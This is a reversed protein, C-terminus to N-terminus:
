GVAHRIGLTIGVYGPFQDLSIYIPAGEQDGEFFVKLYYNGPNGHPLDKLLTAGSVSDYVTDYGMDDSDALRYGEFGWYEALLTCFRDVTMDATFLDAYNDYYYWVEEGMNLTTEGVTPEGEDPLAYITATQIKGTLTNINLNCGYKPETEGLRKRAMYWRVDYSHPFLRGYWFSGGSEEEIEYIQDASGEFDVNPNILGLERWVAIQEKAVKEAAQPTAVENYAAYAAIGLSLLLAAVLALTVIRKIKMQVIREPSGSASGPAYRLAEDVFRDEIAGVALFLKERKM